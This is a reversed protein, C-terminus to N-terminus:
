NDFWDWDVLLNSMEVHRLFPSCLGKVVRQAKFRASRGAGDLLIDCSHITCM